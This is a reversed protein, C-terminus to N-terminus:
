KVSYGQPVKFKNDDISAPQEIKTAESVSKGNKSNVIKKLTIGNWVYYTTTSSQYVTCQKGAVTATGKKTLKHKKLDADSINLFNIPAYKSQKAKKTKEDLQYGKSGRYITVNTTSSGSVKSAQRELQGYKDFTRVVTGKQNGKVFSYTIVGREMGYRKQSATSSSSTETNIKFGYKGAVKKADFKKLKIKGDKGVSSAQGPQLAYSKGASNSTIVTGDLLYVQSNKGDDQVIYQTGIPEVTCNSMCVVYREAGNVSKSLQREFNPKDKSWYSGYRGDRYFAMRGTIYFHIGEVKYRKNDYRTGVITYISDNATFYFPKKRCVATGSLSMRYWSVNGLQNITLSTRSDKCVVKDNLYIPAFSYGFPKKRHKSGNGCVIYDGDRFGYSVFYGSFKAKCEPCVNDEAVDNFNSKASKSYKEVVSLKMRCRLTMYMGGTWIMYEMDVRVYSAGKPITISHSQPKNGKVEHEKGKADGSEVYYRIRHIPIFPRCVSYVAFKEDNSFVVDGVTGKCALKITSGAKVDGVISVTMMSDKLVPSSKQTVVGESCSYAMKMGLREMTGTIPSATTEKQKVDYDVHVLTGQAGRWTGNTCSIELTAKTAGAPVTASVSLPKSKSEKAVSGPLEIPKPGDYKYFSITINIQCEKPNKGVTYSGTCEASITQGPVVTATYDKTSKGSSSGNKVEKINSGTFSNESKVLGDTIHDDMLSVKMQAHGTLAVLLLAILMWLRTITKTMQM